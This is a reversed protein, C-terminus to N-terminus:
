REAAQDPLELVQTAGQPNAATPFTGVVVAGSHSHTKRTGAVELSEPIVPLDFLSLAGGAGVTYIPVPGCLRDLMIEPTSGGLLDAAAIQPISAGCNNPVPTDNVLSLSNDSLMEFAQVRYDLSGMQGALFAIPRGDPSVADLLAIQYANGLSHPLFGSYVITDDAIGEFVHLKQGLGNTVVIERRGDLDFDAAVPNGLDGGGIPQSLILNMQNGPASEFVKLRTTSPCNFNDDSTVLELLGDGDVDAITARFDIVNGEKPATWVVHDPFGSPSSAEMRVFENQCPGLSHEFFLDTLGDGDVDGMALLGGDEEPIAHVPDFQGSGQDEYFLFSKTGSQGAVPWYRLVIEQRHDHDADGVLSNMWQDDQHRLRDVVEFSSGVTPSSPEGVAVVADGTVRGDALRLAPRRWEDTQASLGVLCFAITLLLRGM